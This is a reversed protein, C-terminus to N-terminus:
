IYWVDYGCTFIAHETHRCIQIRMHTGLNCPDRHGQPGTARLDSSSQTRHRCINCFMVGRGRWQMSADGSAV